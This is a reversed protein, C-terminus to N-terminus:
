IRRGYWCVTTKRLGAALRALGSVVIESSKDELGIHWINGDVM